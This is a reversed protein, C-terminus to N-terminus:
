KANFWDFLRTPPEECRWGDDAQLHKLLRIGAERKMVFGEWCWNGYWPIIRKYPFPVGNLTFTLLADEITLSQGNEALEYELSLSNNFRRKHATSWNCSMARGIFNGNNPDNCFFAALVERSGRIGPSPRPLTLVDSM